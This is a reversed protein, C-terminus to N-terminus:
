EPIEDHYEPVEPRYEPVPAHWEGLSETMDDCPLTRNMDELQHYMYNGDKSKVKACCWSVRKILCLSVLVLLLVLTATIIIWTQESLLNQQGTGINEKGSGLRSVFCQGVKYFSSNMGFEYTVNCSGTQTHCPCMNECRCMQRCHPGYWGPNCERECFLGQFGPPCSCSGHVFDCTGGNQCLCKKTCGDGYFGLACVESCNSGTWGADCLCGDKTCIGHRSCNLPGCDLISCAAGSWSGSCRCEGLVCDGHGSCDAPSCVPEHVCLVTSINRACRWMNNEVCHDSPYSALTGNVVLTASGGGDLNIANVVGQTKLFEAVEWINLGRADTQGDVHFLILRGHRDHGVATRASAVSIFRDFNGTAQTADCEAKKSEEIYIEGDRLLWVVGSVLQVFPNVEDMVEEESLYGFVMTGDARIGFQANQIGRSNRVLRGDSVVNGLCASTAVDFFGGNQAVICQAPQATEEVTSTRNVQCGSTGGPELVSLTRLPNNVFTFHGYVAKQKGNEDPFMSVFARVTAVPPEAIRNGPWSEHTVNGHVKPQCDRVHRHHHLPGHFPTSYPLLLDDNLSNRATVVGFMQFLFVLLLEASTKSSSRRGDARM